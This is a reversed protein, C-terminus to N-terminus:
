VRKLCVQCMSSVWKVCKVFRVQCRGGELEDGRCVSAMSPVVQCVRSMCNVCKDCARCAQCVSSVCSVCKVFVQCLCSVNTLCKVCMLCVQCLSTGSSVSSGCKVYNVYVQCLSSLFKFCVKSVQCWKNCLQGVISGISLCKVCKVCM